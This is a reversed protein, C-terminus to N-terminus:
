PRVGFLQFLVSGDGYEAFWDGIIRAKRACDLPESGQHWEPVPRLVMSTPKLKGVNRGENSIEIFGQQIGFMLAERTYPVLQQARGPFLALKQRNVNVWDPLSSRPKLPVAERTPRHLVLPLVLFALSYDLGFQTKKYFSDITSHLLMSCFAPNVMNALEVPRQEWRM